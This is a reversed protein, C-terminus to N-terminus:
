GIRRSRRVERIALLERQAPTLRGALNMEALHAATGILQRATQPRRPKLQARRIVGFSGSNSSGRKV